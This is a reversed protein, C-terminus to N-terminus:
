IKAACASPIYCKRSSHFLSPSSLPSFYRRFLIAVRHKARGGSKELIQSCINSGKLVWRGSFASLVRSGQWRSYEARSSFNYTSTKRFRNIKSITSNSIWLPPPFYAKFFIKSSKKIKKQSSYITPKFKIAIFNFLYISNFTPDM